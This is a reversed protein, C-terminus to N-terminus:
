GGRRPYLHGSKSGTRPVSGSPVALPHCSLGQAGGLGAPHQEWSQSHFTVGSKIEKGVRMRVRVKGGHGLSKRQSAAGATAESPVPCHCLLPAARPEGPARPWGGSGRARGMALPPQPSLAAGAESGWSPPPLLSCGLVPPIKQVQGQEAAAGPGTHIHEWRVPILTGREQAGTQTGPPDASLLLLRPQVGHAAGQEAQGPGLTWAKM